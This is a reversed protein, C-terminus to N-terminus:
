GEKDATANSKLYWPQNADSFQGLFKSSLDFPKDKFFEKEMEIYAQTNEKRIMQEEEKEFLNINKKEKAIKKLDADLKNNVLDISIKSTVTPKEQLQKERSSNSPSPTHSYNGKTKKLQQIRGRAQQNHEVREQQEKKEQAIRKDKQVKLRNDWNYVNWKKQPLINLGGHGGM